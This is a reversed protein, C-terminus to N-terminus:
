PPARGAGGSPASTAGTQASSGSREVDRLRDECETLIDIIRAEAVGYQYDVLGHKDINDCLRLLDRGM